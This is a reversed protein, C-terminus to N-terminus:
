IWQGYVKIDESFKEMIWSKQDETLEFKSKNETVNLKLDPISVQGIAECIQKVRGMESLNFIHTYFKPNKGYRNVLPTMHFKIDEYVSNIDSYDARGDRTNKLDDYRKIYEDVTIQENGTFFESRNNFASKFRSIPHRVICIKIPYKREIVERHTMWIKESVELTYEYNSKEPESGFREPHENIANPNQMLYAYALVTRSGCKQTAAIALKGDVIKYM